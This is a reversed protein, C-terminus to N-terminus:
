AREAKGVVVGRRCKRATGGVTDCGGVASRRGRGGRVWGGPRGGSGAAPGTARAARAAALSVAPWAGLGMERRKGLHSYRYVWKGSTDKKVLRLGGGDELNGAAANKIKIQTLAHKM